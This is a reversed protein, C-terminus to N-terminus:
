LDMQLNGSSVKCLRESTDVIVLYNSCASALIGEVYLVFLWFFARLDRNGVAIYAMM